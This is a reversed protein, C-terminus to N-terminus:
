YYYTVLERMKRFREQGNCCRAVCRKSTYCVLRLGIETYLKVWLDGVGRSPGLQESIKGYVYALCPLM